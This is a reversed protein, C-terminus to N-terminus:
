GGLAMDTPHSNHRGAVHVIYIVIAECLVHIGVTFHTLTAAKFHIAMYGAAQNDRLERPKRLEQVEGMGLKLNLSQM